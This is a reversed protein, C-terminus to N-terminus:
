MSNPSSAALLAATAEASSSRPLAGDVEPEAEPELSLSTTELTSPSSSTLDTYIEKCRQSSALIQRQMEAELRTQYYAAGVSASDDAAPFLFEWGPKGANRTKLIAEFEQGHKTVWEACHEILEASAAPLQKPRGMDFNSTSIATPSTRGKKRSRGQGRVPARLFKRFEKFSIYGDEDTDIFEFLQSNEASSLPVDESDIGDRRVARCWEGFSLWGDRDTDYHAFVAQVNFGSPDQWAAKINAKIAALTSVLEQRSFPPERSNRVAIQSAIHKSSENISPHFTLEPNHLHAEGSRQVTREHRRQVDVSLREVFSQKSKTRARASSRNHRSRSPSSLKGSHSPSSLRTSRHPSTLRGRSQQDIPSRRVRTPSQLREIRQRATEKAHLRETLQRSKKSIQPKFSHEEEKERALRAKKEEAKRRRNERDIEQREIFSLGGASGASALKASGPAMLMPSHVSSQRLRSPSALTRNPGSLEWQYSARLEQREREKENEKRQREQERWEAEERRRQEDELKQLIRQQVKIDLRARLIAPPADEENRRNKRLPATAVRPPKTNKSPKRVSLVEQATRPVDSGAPLTNKAINASHLRGADRSTKLSSSNAVKQRVPARTSHKHRVKTLRNSSQQRKQTKDLQTQPVAHSRPDAKHSPDQALAKVPAAAQALAPAPSASVLGVEPTPTPERSVTRPNEAKPETAGQPAQQLHGLLQTVQAAGFGARALGAEDPAVFLLDEVTEILNERMTSLFRDAELGCDSLWCDIKVRENATSRELTAEPSRLTGAQGSSQEHAARSEPAGRPPDSAWLSQMHELLQTVQVGGFGAQDLGAKDPAVFVLDDVTEVLNERLLPLFATAELECDSLWQEIATEGSM